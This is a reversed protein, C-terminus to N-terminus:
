VFFGARLERNIKLCLGDGTGVAGSVTELDIRNVPLAQQFSEVVDPQHRLVQRIDFGEFFAM